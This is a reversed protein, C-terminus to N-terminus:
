ISLVIRFPNYIRAEFKLYIYLYTYCLFIAIGSETIQLSYSNLNM